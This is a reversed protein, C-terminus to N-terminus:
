LSNAIIRLINTRLRQVDLNEFLSDALVQLNRRLWLRQGDTAEEVIVDLIPGRLDIAYCEQRLRRLLWEKDHLARTIGELDNHSVIHWALMSYPDDYDELEKGM